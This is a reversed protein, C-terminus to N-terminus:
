LKRGISQLIQMLRTLERPRAPCRELMALEVEVPDLHTIEALRKKREGLGLGAFGGVRAAARSQIEARM